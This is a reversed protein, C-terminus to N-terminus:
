IYGDPNLRRWSNLDCRRATFRLSFQQVILICQLHKRRLETSMVKRHCIPEAIRGVSSEFGSDYAKAVDAQTKRTSLVIMPNHETAESGKLSECLEIGTLNPMMWDSLILDFDEREARGLAEAGDCATIVQYGWGELGQSLLDRSKADDEAIWIKAMKVAGLKPPLVFSERLTVGGGVSEEPPVPKKEQARFSGQVCSV